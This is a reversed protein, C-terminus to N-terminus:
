SVLEHLLWTEFAPGFEPLVRRVLFTKGTQRPGFLFNSKKQMWGKLDPLREIAPHGAPTETSAM